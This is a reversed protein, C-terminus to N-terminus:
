EALKYVKAKEVEVKEFDTDQGDTQDFVQILHEIAKDAEEAGFIEVNTMYEGFDDIYEGDWEWLDESHPSYKSLAQGTINDVIIYMKM